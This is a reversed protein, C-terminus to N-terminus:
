RLGLSSVIEEYIEEVTGTGTVTAVKGMAEYGGIVPLTKETFTRMRKRITEESADDARGEITARKLIRRVGEEPDLQLHLCHFERGLKKM